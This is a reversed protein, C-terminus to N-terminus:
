DFLKSYTNINKVSDWRKSIRVPQSVDIKHIRNWIERMIMITKWAMSKNDLKKDRKDLVRPYLDYYYILMKQVKELHDQETGLLGYERDAQKLALLIKIWDDNDWTHLYPDWLRKDDRRVKTEERIIENQTLVCQEWLIRGEEAAQKIDESM